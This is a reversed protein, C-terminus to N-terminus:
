LYSGTVSTGLFSQSISGSTPSMARVRRRVTKAPPPKKVEEETLDGGLMQRQVLQKYIGEQAILQQHVGEQM